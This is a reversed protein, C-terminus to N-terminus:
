LNKIARKKLLALFFLWVALATIMVALVIVVATIFFELTLIYVLADLLFSGIYADNNFAFLIYHINGWLNLLFPKTETAGLYSWLCFILAFGVLGMLTKLSYGLAKKRDAKKIIYIILGVLLISCPILSYLAGQMLGKVDEMHSVADEGFLSVGDEYGGNLMKVGDLTLSFDDLGGFLYSVIHECVLDLQEDSLTAKKDRIGGVFYIIRRRETGDEKKESYVGCERLSEKYFDESSALILATSVASIWIILLVTLVSAFIDLRRRM